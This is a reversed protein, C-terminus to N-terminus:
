QRPSIVDCCSFKVLTDPSVKQALKKTSLGWKAWSHSLCWQVVDVYHKTTITTRLWTHSNRRFSLKFRSVSHIVHVDASWKTILIYVKKSSPLGGMLPLLAKHKDKDLYLWKLLNMKKLPVTSTGKKRVSPSLPAIIMSISISRTQQSMIEKAESVDTFTMESQNLPWLPWIWTETYTQSDKTPHM